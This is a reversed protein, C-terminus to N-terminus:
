ISRLRFDIEQQQQLTLKAFLEDHLKKQTISMNVLIDESYTPFQEWLYALSCQPFFADLKSRPLATFDISNLWEKPLNSYLYHPLKISEDIIIKHIVEWPFQLFRENISFPMPHYNPNPILLQLTQGTLKKLHRFHNSNLKDLLSNNYDLSGEELMTSILDERLYNLALRSEELTRRLILDLTKPTLRNLAGLQTASLVTLLHPYKDLEGNEVLQCITETNLFQFRDKITKEDNERTPIPFITSLIEPTLNKLNILHENSLFNLLYAYHNPFNDTLEGNEVLKCVLGSRLFAFRKKLSEFITEGWPNPFILSLTRPTIETISKLQDESLSKLVKKEDDLEGKELKLVTPDKTGNFKLIIYLAIKENGSIGEKWLRAVKKRYGASCLPVLSFAALTMGVAVIISGLRWFANHSIYGTGYKEYWRDNYKSSKPRCDTIQQFQAKAEAINNFYIKDM